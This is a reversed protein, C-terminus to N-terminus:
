SIHSYDQIQVQLRNQSSLRTKQPINPPTLTQQKVQTSKAVSDLVFTSQMVETLPTRNKYKHVCAGLGISSHYILHPEKKIQLTSAFICILNEISNQAHWLFAVSCVELGIKKPNESFFFVIPYKVNM